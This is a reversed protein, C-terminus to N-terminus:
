HYKLEELQKIWIGLCPWGVGVHSAVAYKEVRRTSDERFCEAGAGSAKRCVWSDAM